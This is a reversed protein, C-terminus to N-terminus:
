NDEKLENLENLTEDLHALGVAVLATLADSANVVRGAAGTLQPVATRLAERAAPTVSLSTYPTKRDSNKM